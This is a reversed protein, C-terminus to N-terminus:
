KKPEPQAEAGKGKFDGATVVSFKSFDVYKKLAADVAAADLEKVKAEVEADFQLTRGLFLNNALSSALSGDETRGIEERRLWGDKAKTLEEATVGEKVLRAVEESVGAEVKALNRPNYIAMIMVTGRPDIPSANFMSAASYSLGGKGRLRDAIRSSISGGGLIFNGVSLAPYDPADDKLPFVTGALYMANEKDPTEITEIAPKLGEQYPREVRAYPKSAKWGELMKAVIPLVESPEFDGVVALEGVNAGVYENYLQKVQDISAEKVRAITEDPTPTYRVDDAPYSSLLRQLRNSALTTPETKASELQALRGTKQVEFEEAPLLPERLVQRLIELAAPLNARKTELAFGIAGPGGGRPSLRAFNKDLEDQVQQKTLNKTGGRLMLNPLFDAATTLGKLNEADGYRLTIVLNVTEGRTKKPLLAVKVGEIQSPRQVRAEIAEPSTDFTEGTSKAERGKYDAVLAKVDPNAPIPTREPKDSPIFFGVTRNSPEFYAAAVRKVDEPTVKEMRDRALFYLRWDGQAAWESLETAISNPDAAAMEFNKTYRRVAREVEEATVGEDAVKKLEDYIVDRVKELEARDKTNVRAIISFLGPDHSPSSGGGVSAAKRTEVLAKYLRGSPQSSLVDALVDLAPYDPHPGSPVHYALGVVGVDGVRRLTVFREGDQAPEETYTKPLTRDPKPIAGFYKVILDKAKAEDFKGAVVLMANDPQYFKKYFARLNDVPVREIDTRNGITSKGYNHWDYAASALRQFLVGIPNNEGREFENRVVSFETALDEPKIPSNVMRDAELRLAFELNDDTATLTEFYNTRDDSTTGNFQAGREKFVGPIDPHDPTGKFVMHELLHAMGTEGYGEHRSGVFYTVAVTVKPKSPDPFLLVQMGNPLRYETIGEVSAVQELPGKAQARAAGATSVLLGLAAAAPIAKMLTIRM